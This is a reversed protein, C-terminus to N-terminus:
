FFKKLRQRLGQPQEESPVQTHPLQQPQQDVAVPSIINNPDSEELTASHPLCKLAVSLTRRLWDYWKEGERDDSFWEKRREGGGSFTFPFDFRMSHSTMRLVSIM